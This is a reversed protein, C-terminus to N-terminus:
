IDVCEEPIKIISYYNEFCVLNLIVDEIILFGITYFEAKAM